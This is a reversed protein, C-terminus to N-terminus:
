REIRGTRHRSLDIRVTFRGVPRERAIELLEADVKQRSRLRKDGKLVAASVSVLSKYKQFTQPSLTVKGQSGNVKNRCALLEELSIWVDDFHGKAPTIAHDLLSVTRVFFLVVM